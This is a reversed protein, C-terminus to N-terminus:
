LKLNLIHVRGTDTEMLQLRLQKASKAEGPFFIFGFALGKAIPRNELSKKNMDAVIEHRADDSTFGQVGGMTGGLAAGAVAGKGALEGIGRGTVIGLAAGLVAGATAGLFGAYAAEKFTEKTQAYRTARDYAIKDALIPWLNGENDELFTQNPVIRLPHTGESDFAVEVPLMGAGRVDFGFAERAKKVDTFAQAGVVAGGAQAANGYASPAKFPLPKVQYATSCGTLFAMLIFVVLWRNPKVM